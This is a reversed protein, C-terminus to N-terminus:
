RCRWLERHCPFPILVLRLVSVWCLLHLMCKLQCTEPCANWRVAWRGDWSGNKFGLYLLVASFPRMRFRTMAAEVALGTSDFYSIATEIYESSQSVSMDVLTLFRLWVGTGVADAPIHPTYVRWFFLGKTTLMGTGKTTTIPSLQWPVIFRRWTVSCRLWWWFWYHCQAWVVRCQRM